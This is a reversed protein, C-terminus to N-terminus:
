LSDDFLEDNELRNFPIELDKQMEAISLLLFTPNVVSSKISYFNFIVHLHFQAFKM